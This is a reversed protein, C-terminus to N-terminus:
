VTGIHSIKDMNPHALALNPYEDGNEAVIKKKLM